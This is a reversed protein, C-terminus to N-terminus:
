ASSALSITQPPAARPFTITPTPTTATDTRPTITLKKTGRRGAASGFILNGHVPGTSVNLSNPAMMRSGRSSRISRHSMNTQNTPAVWSMTIWSTLSVCNTQPSAVVEFRIKAPRTPMAIPPRTAVFIALIGRQYLRSGHIISAILAGHMSSVNTGISGSLTRGHAIARSISTTPVITPRIM